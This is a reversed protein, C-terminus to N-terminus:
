MIKGSDLIWKYTGDKCMLRHESSYIPTIGKIHKELLEHVSILDDPHVRKEWENFNNEIENDEFGLMNKWQTSFYVENTMPNWDWIGDGAGELAFQWRKESRELADRTNRNNDQKIIYKGLM